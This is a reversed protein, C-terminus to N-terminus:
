VRVFGDWGIMKKALGYLSYVLKDKHNLLFKQYREDYGQCHEGPLGKPLTLRAGSNSCTWADM